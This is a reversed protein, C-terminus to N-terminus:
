ELFFILSAGRKYKKLNKSFFLLIFYKVPPGPDSNKQSIVLTSCWLITTNPTVPNWTVESYGHNLTVLNRCVMNPTVLNWGVMNPTVMNQSDMNRGVMKQTAMTRTVMTQISIANDSKSGNM